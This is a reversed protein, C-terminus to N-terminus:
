IATIIHHTPNGRTTVDDIGCDSEALARLVRPPVRNYEPGVIVEVVHDYEGTILNPNSIVTTDIVGPVDSLRIAADAYEERSRHEPM